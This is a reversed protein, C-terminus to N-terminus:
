RVSFGAARLEASLQRGSSTSVVLRMGEAYPESSVVQLGPIAQLRELAQDVVAAPPPYCSSAISPRVMQELVILKSRSTAQM